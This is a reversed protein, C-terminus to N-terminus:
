SGGDEELMCGDSYAINGEADNYYFCDPCVKGGCEPTSGSSGYFYIVNCGDGMSDCKKKCDDPHSYDTSRVFSDEGCSPVLKKDKQVLLEYTDSWETPTATPTFTNTPTDTTPSSSPSATPSDTSSFSPSTTPSMTNDVFTIDFSGSAGCLLDASM